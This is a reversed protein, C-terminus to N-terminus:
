SKIFQSFTPVYSRNEDVSEEEDDISSEGGKEDDETPEQVEVDEGEPVEVDEPVENTDIHAQVCLEVDKYDATLVATYVGEEDEVPEREEEDQEKFALVTTEENEPIEVEIYVADPDLEEDEELGLAEKVAAVDEENDQDFVKKIVPSLDPADENGEGGEASGEPADVVPADIDEEKEESVPATKVMYKKKAPMQGAGHHASTKSSSFTPLPKGNFSGM